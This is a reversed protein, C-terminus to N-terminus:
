EKVLDAGALELERSLRVLEAIQIYVVKRRWSEQSHMGFERTEHELLDVIEKM